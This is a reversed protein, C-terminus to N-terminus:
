KFLERLTKLKNKSSTSQQMSSFDLEGAYPQGRKLFLNVFDSPTLGWKMLFTKRGDNKKVRGTSKSGFHYVKSSGLGKFIRVGALALKMSLDPDSYMGPSFEISMGGVLDWLEIHMINPPWTSGSWNTKKLSGLDTLLRAEDFHEPDRGYDGLIVCDNGTDSPEIVTGSLIFNKHGINKIEQDLETDWGPLVYMDDNLYLIYDSKILSRSCNLAYCVGINEPSLVVDVDTEKELWEPTGDKGENVVVIIQLDLKSHKRISHICAKLYPLNNWTPIVVSFRYTEQASKRILKISDIM